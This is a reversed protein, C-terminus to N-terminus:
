ALLYYFGPLYGSKSKNAYVTSNWIAEMKYKKNDDNGANLQRMKKVRERKTPDQKLLLIHFVNYIRWKKLLVLKYTKKAVLHLVWFLQFFKAELKQNQKTKIYKGNLCVKNGPVYSRPKVNKNHAQKQLEQAHLINERCVTMLEWLKALLKNASKSNFCFNTNEEFYVRSHYGCNLEFLTYSTSANKTNNYVFKAMSLFRAKNNQKFNVFAWFYEEITSNQLKTQSITQFHFAIFLRQKIGFFYYLFSWLKLYLFSDRNTVISDSLGHHWVITNIIVKALDLVEITIKVLKYQM